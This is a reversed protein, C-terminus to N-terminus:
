NTLEYNLIALVALGATDSKLVRPGLNVVRFGIKKAEEVEFPTFDGEPGIAIAINGGRFGFLIKKLPEARDDLAAILALDYGDVKAAIEAFTKIDEIRPIDSRGCQKSAELSIKRWREVQSVRKPQDWDPITRGTILPIISNVGLETAKEVIYDMKEKKPIAQILTLKSSEKSPPTRTEVLEVIVSKGKIDKIFGIYERGTGDFTVVKDLKNLRMVDVIHHAQEGTIRIIKGSIAEKPVYF